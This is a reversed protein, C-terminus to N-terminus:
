KPQAARGPAGGSKYASEMSATPAVTDKKTDPTNGASKECGCVLAFLCVVLVVMGLRQM